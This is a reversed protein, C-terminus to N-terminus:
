KESYTIDWVSRVSVNSDTALISSEEGCTIALIKSGCAERMVKTLELMNDIRLYNPLYLSIIINYWM